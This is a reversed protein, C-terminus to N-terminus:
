QSKAQGSTPTATQRSKPTNQPPNPSKVPRSAKLALAVDDTIDVTDEHTFVVTDNKTIVISLGKAAAVKRVVPKVEERFSAILQVRHQNLNGIARQRAQNLKFGAQQQMGLLQQTQEDTLEEGFEVKKQDIQEVFSAQVVKLQESLSQQQQQLSDVMQVDRGLQTALKDLDIIAVGGLRSTAHADDSGFKECGISCVAVISLIFTFGTARM